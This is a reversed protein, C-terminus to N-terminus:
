WPVGAFCRMAEASPQRDRRMFGILTWCAITSQSVPFCKEAIDGCASLPQMRSSECRRAAFDETWWRTATSFSFLIEGTAARWGANRGLAASPRLPTLVITKTGLREALAVSGDSSGSDVYILEMNWDRRMAHVSELCRRLRAGENRGIVVVSLKSCFAASM